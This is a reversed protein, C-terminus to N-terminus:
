DSVATEVGFVEVSVTQWAKPYNIYLQHLCM